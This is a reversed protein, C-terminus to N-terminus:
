IKGRQLAKLVFRFMCGPMLPLLLEFLTVGQSCRRLRLLRKGAGKVRRSYDLRASAWDELTRQPQGLDIRDKLAAMRRAFPEVRKAIYDAKTRIDGLPGTQNNGHIRHAILAEPLSIVKGRAASFLALHHDYVMGPVLPLAAKAVATRMLMTCGSMFNDKLLGPALNEGSRFHIHPMAKTISDFLVEGEGDIIQQDSCVATVRDDQMQGLLTELKHPMWRDDQDCFAVYPTEVQQILAAFTENSGQNEENRTLEWPLEGLTETLIRRIDELETHPSCDDLILVKEPPLTQAAVSQLQERLWHAPPDYTAMVVTIGSGAMVTAEQKEVIEARIIGALAM